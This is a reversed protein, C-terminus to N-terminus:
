LPLERRAAKNFDEILKPKLARFQMKEEQIRQALETHWKAAEETKGLKVLEYLLMIDIDIMSGLSREYERSNIFAVTQEFAREVRGAACDIYLLPLVALGSIANYMPSSRAAKLDGEFRRWMEEALAVNGLKLACMVYVHFYGIRENIRANPPVAITNLYNLATQPQGMREFIEAYQIAHLLVYPKNIIKTQEFARLYEMCFGKEDLIKYLEFDKLAVVLSGIVLWLINFVIGCMAGIAMRVGIPMDSGSTRYPIAWLAIILIWVWPKM